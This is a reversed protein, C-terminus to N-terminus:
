KHYTMMMMMVMTPDTTSTKTVNSSHKLNTNTDTCKLTNQTFKWTQTFEKMTEKRSNWAHLSYQLCTRKVHNHPSSICQRRRRHHHHHHLLVSPTCCHVDICTCLVNRHRVSRFKFVVCHMYTLCHFSDAAETSSVPLTTDNYDIYLLKSM